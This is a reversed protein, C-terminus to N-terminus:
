DETDITHEYFKRAVQEAFRRYTQDRVLMSNSATQPLPRDDPYVATEPRLEYRRLQDPDSALDHLVVSAGLRGQVFQPRSADRMQFETLEIYVAYDANFNRGVRQPDVQADPVRQLFDEVERPDVVDLKMQRSSMEVRLKDGVHSAIEFRAHPYHFLTEPPTWVVVVVRGASLKDFEAPVKQRTDRVLAFMQCGSAGGLALLLLVITGRTLRIAGYRM